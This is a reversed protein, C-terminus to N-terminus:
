RTDRYKKAISITADLCQYRVVSTMLTVVTVDVAVDVLEILNRLTASEREIM